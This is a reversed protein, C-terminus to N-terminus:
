MRHERYVIGNAVQLERVYQIVAQMSLRNMQPQPPMDGFMWHHRPVGNKAARYFAEDAHHGPNYIDHVLPPGQDTGSANAGHCSACNVEYEKAGALAIQSFQAPINVAVTPAADSPSTFANYGVALAGLAFVGLVAYKPLNDSLKSM